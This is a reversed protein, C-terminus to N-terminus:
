EEEESEDLLPGSTAAKLAAVRQNEMEVFDAMSVNIKNLKLTAGLATALKATFVEQRTEDLQKRDESELMRDLLKDVMDEPLGYQRYMRAYRDRLASRVEEDTVSVQLTQAIKDRVLSWRLGDLFNAFGEELRKESMKENAVRLWRKLFKEPLEFEHLKTLREQVDLLLLFNSRMGYATAFSNRIFERAGAEGEVVGEGFMADFLEQDLPSPEMHQIQQITAQFTTGVERDDDADLGLLYKRTNAESTEKELEFPNLVLVDGTKKGKLATMASESLAGTFVKAEHSIGEPKLAGNEIEELLLTITHDDGVTDTDKLEGKQRAAYNLDEEILSEEVEIVYYDYTDKDSIGQLEFQPVLGIDFKFDFTGLNGPDFAIDEHDEVSLPQGLFDIQQEELYGFLAKELESNVINALLGKGYMKRIVSDPTKGKRFGKLQAQKKYTALETNFKDAYDSKELTVTLLAHIADVDERLFKPM